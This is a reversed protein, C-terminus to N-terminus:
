GARSPHAAAPTPPASATHRPWAQELIAVVQEGQASGLSFPRDDLRSQLHAHILATMDGPPATRRAALRLANGATQTLNAVSHRALQRARDLARPGRDRARQRHLLMNQVDVHLTAKTGHIRLTFTDPRANLSLTVHATARGDALTLRLEDDADDHRGTAWTQLHQPQANLSLFGLTAYLPHPAVDELLGGPLANLWAARADPQNTMGRPAFARFTEIHLVDGVGGNAVLRRAAVLRPDFWLNHNVALSRGHEDAVRAMRRCEDRTMALPKECLVDAGRQMLDCALDAHTQPPTVLHVVDPVASDFLEDLSDTAFPIDYADALAAARDVQKDVIAVLQVHPHAQLPRIHYRANMGAGVIAARLPKGHGPSHAIAHALPDRLPRRPQWGTDTALNATHYRLSLARTRIKEGPPANLRLRRLTDCAFALPGAPLHWARQPRRTLQQYLALYAARTCNPEDVLNYTQGVTAPTHLIRLLADAVSDVHVLPLRQRPSGYALRRNLRPIPQGLHEFLVHGPGYVLGPRVVTLALHDADATRRVHQEADLKARAYPGLAPTSAALPADPALTQGHTLHGTDYVAITSVHIFRRVPPTAHRCAALLAATGDVTARQQTPWDGATAAALHIVADIGDCLDALTAPDTLDGVHCDVHRPLHRRARQPDRVLVRVRHGADLLPPLLHRGLFGTAGTVLIHM